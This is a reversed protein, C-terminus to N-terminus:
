YIKSFNFLFFILNSVSIVVGSYSNHSLGLEICCLFKYDCFMYLQPVYTFTVIFFYNIKIRILILRLIGEINGLKISYVRNYFYLM